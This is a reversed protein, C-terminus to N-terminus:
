QVQVPRNLNIFLLQFQNFKQELQEALQSAAALQQQKAQQEVSEAIAELQSAGVSASSGKIHHAIREIQLLNQRKVMEGLQQLHIQTDTLYLQLLEQEFEPNHDSLQHLRVLDLHASWGALDGESAVEGSKASDATDVEARIMQIWRQLTNALTERRLPKALFDDMGAAKAEAQIRLDDSATLAIIISRRSDFQQERQRILRTVTYGDMGPLRCDMFIIQYSNQSIADLAAQGNAAVDAEYGLSELQRVIVKQNTLNDEVVLINLPTSSSILPM